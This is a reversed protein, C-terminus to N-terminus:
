RDLFLPKIQSGPGIVLGGLRQLRQKLTGPVGMLSEKEIENALLLGPWGDLSNLAKHRKDDFIQRVLHSFAQQLMESIWMLEPSGIGDGCDGKVLLGVVLVRVQM